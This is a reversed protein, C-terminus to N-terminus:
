IDELKKSVLDQHGPSKTALYQEQQNGTIFSNKKKRKKKKKSRFKSTLINERQPTKFFHIGLNIESIFKIIGKYFIQKLCKFCKLINKM